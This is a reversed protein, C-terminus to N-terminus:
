FGLFFPSYPSTPLFFPFLALQYASPSLALSVLGATEFDKRRTGPIARPDSGETETGAARDLHRRQCKRTGHVALWRAGGREGTRWGRRSGELSRRPGDWVAVTLSPGGGWGWGAPRPGTSLRRHRPVRRFFSGRHYPRRGASAEPGKSERGRRRCVVGL